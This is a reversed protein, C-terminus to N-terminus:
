LNNIKNKKKLLVKYFSLNGFDEIVIVGKKYNHSFLRPTLIHNSRLFKNIATYVILNKYKEKSALIVIRSKKNSILRYFKRFSADGAIPFMKSKMLNITKGSEM